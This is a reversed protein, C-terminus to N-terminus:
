NQRFRFCRPSPLYRRTAKAQGDLLHCAALFLSLKLGSDILSLKDRHFWIPRKMQLNPDSMNMQLHSVKLSRECKVAIHEAKFERLPETVLGCEKGGSAIVVVDPQICPFTPRNEAARM